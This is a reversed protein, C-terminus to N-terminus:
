ERCTQLHIGLGGEGQVEDWLEQCIQYSIAGFATRPATTAPYWNQIVM